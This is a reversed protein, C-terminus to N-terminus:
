LLQQKFGRVCLGIRERERETETVLVFGISSAGGASATATRRANSSSCSFSGTKFTWAALSMRRRVLVEGRQRRWRRWATEGSTEM